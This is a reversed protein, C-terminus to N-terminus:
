KRLVSPSDMLRIAETFQSFLRTLLALWVVVMRMAQRGIFDRSKVKKQFIYYTHNADNFEEGDESGILLNEVPSKAQSADAAENITVVKENTMKLIVAVGGDVVDGSKAFQTLVIDKDNLASVACVLVDDYKGGEPVMWANESYFTAYRAYTSSDYLGINVTAIVNSPTAGGIAVIHFNKDEVEDTYFYSNYTLYGTIFVMGFADNNGVIEIQDAEDGYVYDIGDFMIAGKSCTFTFMGMGVDAIDFQEAENIDETLDLGGWNASCVYKESYMLYYKAGPELSLQGWASGTGVFALLMAFLISYIKKM